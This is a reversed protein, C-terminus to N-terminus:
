KSEKKIRKILEEATMEIWGIGDAIDDIINFIRGQEWERWEKVLPHNRGDGQAHQEAHIEKFCL